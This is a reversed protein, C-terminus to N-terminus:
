RLRRAANRTRNAMDVALITRERHKLGEADDWAEYDLSVALGDLVSELAIRALFPGSEAGAGAGVYVGPHALLESLRSM